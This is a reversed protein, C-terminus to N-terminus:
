KETDYLSQQSGPQAENQATRSQELETNLRAQHRQGSRLSWAVDAIHFASAELERRQRVLTIRLQRLEEDKAGLQENAADLYQRLLGRDDLANQLNGALGENITLTREAQQGQLACNHWSNKAELRLRDNDKCLGANDERLRIGEFYATQCYGCASAHGGATVL